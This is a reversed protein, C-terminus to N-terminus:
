GLLMPVLRDTPRWPNRESSVVLSAKRLIQLKDRVKSNKLLNGTEAFECRIVM